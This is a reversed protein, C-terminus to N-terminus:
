RFLCCSCVLSYLILSNGLDTIILRSIGEQGYGQEIFPILFGTNMILIGLAMAGFTKLPLNKLITKRLISLILITIVFVFPAVLLLPIYSRDIETNIIALYIFAPAGIYFVIKLLSSGDETKLLKAEKLLFGCLILLIAPIINVLIEM